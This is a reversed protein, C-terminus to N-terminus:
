GSKTPTQSQWSNGGKLIESITQYLANGDEAAIAKIQTSHTDKVLEDALRGSGKLALVPRDTVLSNEVDLRSIEGGNVLITLSPNGGSLVTALKAIWPSEDGWKSGPVLVFHTHNPDLPVKDEM